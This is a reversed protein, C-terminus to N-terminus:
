DNQARGEDYCHWGRSQAINKPYLIEGCGRDNYECTLDSEAACIERQLEQERVLASNLETKLRENEATINEIECVMERWSKDTVELCRELRENKVCMETAISMQEKFARMYDFSESEGHVDRLRDYIWQLLEPKIKDTM